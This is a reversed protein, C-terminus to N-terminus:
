NLYAYGTFPYNFIVKATNKDIYEIKGLIVSNASDVVTISPFKQLNHNIIWEASAIAQEHKFYADAGIANIELIAEITNQPELCMNSIIPQQPIISWTIEYM